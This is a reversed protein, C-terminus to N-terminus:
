TPGLLWEGVQGTTPNHWIVDAGGAHNIDGTGAVRYAPDFSGLSSSNSWTGNALAWGEVQGTTPNRWLIDAAGDGNFDNIASPKFAPDFHGLDLSGAWNGDQMHWEDVQGTTPNHWFVDSTGDRNADGIGAFNWALNYSAFTVSGAWHGDAIRWSDVQGTTPNQFLIDSTGDGNFDGAGLVNWDTGHSGVDRSQWWSGNSMLWIDLKGTSSDRWLVDSTGDANFDGIGAVQWTPGHTGLDISQQWQGGNALQWEEVRGTSTERWLLDSTGDHNFDGLGAVQWGAPHAGIAPSGAWNFPPPPVFNVTITETAVNSDLSGDNAKFTFSDTGAFHLNPAYSFSGDPNVTVSGHTAQTVRSYIFSPNDIDTAVLAGNIVTGEDGSASGNQAVPADDVANVTLSVTAVNSDLAGDNAKFTFSDSGNFDSNPAYSFTGDANVMVNGHSANAVRSYTLSPSDPDTAVLQGGIPTDENGSATGDSAVPPQAFLFDDESLNVKLVGALTLSDGSGFDIVTDPGAQTARALVDSLSRLLPFAKLDVRDDTGSGAIFHNIQDAGDGPRFVFRDDGASGDLIDTGPGGILTDAGDGGTITDNGFGGNLTLATLAALGNGATITDNGGLAAVVIQETGSIDVAFSTPVTRAVHVFTGNATITFTEDASAGVVIGTDTGGSANVIVQDTAELGLVAVQPVLGAVTLSGNGSSSISFADAGVTGNVTVVDPSGDGVNTGPPNALDVTVDTAETASLDNVTINDAGGLASVHIHEVGDLDMVVNGVNRTFLVRSGNASLAFIEAINAGNFQLTDSGAQGEIIDSGDGPNWIFTDDGIGLFAIDNGLGGTVVDIEGAGTLIDAGSGGSLSTSPLGGNTDDISLTDDDGLGSFQISTTTAVTAPGGSIPIAGGNILIDGALDRSVNITNQTDDGTVTLVGGSFSASISM